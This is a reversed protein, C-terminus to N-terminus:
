NLLEVNEIDRTNERLGDGRKKIFRAPVGGVISYPKVSHSVVAGAAVVSGRGIQVGGIVTVNAALWVDDEIIIEGCSHGQERIPKDLATTVHNSARLVVNPGILVDNGLLIRGHICANIHVNMNLSVHDGIEILGDGGAALTCNRGCSFERGISINLGSDVLIGMGLNARPGLRKFRKGYYWRRSCRGLGGPIQGVMFDLHELIERWVVSFV